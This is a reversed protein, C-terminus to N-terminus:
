TYVNREKQRGTQRVRLTCTNYSICKFNMLLVLSTKSTIKYTHDVCLAEAEAELKKELNTVKEEAEM